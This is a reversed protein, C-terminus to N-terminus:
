VVGAELMADLRNGSRGVAAAYASPRVAMTEVPIVPYARNTSAVQLFGTRVASIEAVRISDRIRDIEDDSFGGDAWVLVEGKFLSLDTTEGAVQIARRPPPDVSGSGAVLLLATGAMAVMLSVLVLLARLRAGM